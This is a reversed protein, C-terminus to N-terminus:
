LVGAHTGARVPVFLFQSFMQVHGMTRASFLRFGTMRDLQRDVSAHMWQLRLFAGFHKDAEEVDRM